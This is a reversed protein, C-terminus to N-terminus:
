DIYHKMPYFTVSLKFTWNLEFNQSVPPHSPQSFLKSKYVPVAVLFQNENVMNNLM